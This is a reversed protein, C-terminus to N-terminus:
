LLKTRANSEDIFSHTKIKFSKTLESISATFGTNIFKSKRNHTDQVLINATKNSRIQQNFLLAEFTPM